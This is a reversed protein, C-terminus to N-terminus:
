PRSWRSVASKSLGDGPAVPIETELLRMARGFERTAVTTAMMDRGM